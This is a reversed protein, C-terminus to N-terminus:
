SAEAPTFGPSFLEKVPRRKRGPRHNAEDYDTGPEYFIIQSGSSDFEFPVHVPGDLAELVDTQRDPPVFLLLFGGGGAGTLKGGVAGAALAKEYLADVEDNSVITSL